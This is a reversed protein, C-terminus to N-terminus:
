DTVSFRSSLISQAQATGTMGFLTPSYFDSYFDQQLVDSMQWPFTEPFVSFGIGTKNRKQAVILL